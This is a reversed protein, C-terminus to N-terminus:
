SDFIACNGDEAIVFWGDASFDIDDDLDFLWCGANDLIYKKSFDDNFSLIVQLYDISPYLIKM